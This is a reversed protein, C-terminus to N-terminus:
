LRLPAADEVLAIGAKSLARTLFDRGVSSGLWQVITAAATAQEQTCGPILTKLIPPLHPNEANVHAWANALVVETPNLKAAQGVVRSHAVGKHVLDESAVQRGNGKEKLTVSLGLAHAMHLFTALKVQAQASESRAVSMRSLGACEALDQQSWGLEERAQRLKGLLAEQHHPATVSATPAAHTRPKRM